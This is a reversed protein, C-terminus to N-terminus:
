DFDFRLGFSVNYLNTNPEQFIPNLDYKAYLAVWDLGVYGSLGYVLDNTNYDNKLKLKVDNGDGSYKLKQREGINVGAYGGLGVRFQKKTSFWRANETEVKKYPGFEFHVPVVLNDLRFKSKDLDFYFEELVTREGQEVFYRNGTPKLGNFQFSLGYKLRLWASETFVRTRWAFGIEFFRSGATKFDSDGLSQGSELANNFGAAIVLHKETREDRKEWDDKNRDTNWEFDSDSNEWADDKKQRSLLAIQNDIISLRNRINMARNEAAEKKEMEAQEKSIRGEELRQNIEAVEKRLATKEEEEVKEREQELREITAKASGQWAQVPESFSCLFILAALISINKM